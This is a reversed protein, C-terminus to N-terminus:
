LSLMREVITESIRTPDVGEFFVERRRSFESDDDRYALTTIHEILNGHETFVPGLGQTHYDLRSEYPQDDFFEVEDWQYYAIPTGIFAADLVASSYDTFVMEATQFAERYSM